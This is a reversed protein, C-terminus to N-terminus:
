DKAEVRDCLRCVGVTEERESRLPEDCDVCYQPLVERLAPLTVQFPSKKNAIM